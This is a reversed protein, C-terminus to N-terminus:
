SLQRREPDVRTPWMINGMRLFYVAEHKRKDTYCRFGKIILLTNM